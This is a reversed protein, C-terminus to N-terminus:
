DEHCRSSTGTPKVTDGRNLIKRALSVVVPESFSEDVHDLMTLRYGDLYKKLTWNNVSNSRITYTQRQPKGNQKKRLHELLLIYYPVGLTEEQSIKIIRNAGSAFYFKVGNALHRMIISAWMPELEDELLLLDQVRM